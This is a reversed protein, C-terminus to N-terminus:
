RLLKYRHVYGGGRGVSEPLTFNLIGLFYVGKLGYDWEGKPAQGIIPLASYYLARETFHEQSRVQVEVIFDEGSSSRCEVDFYSNRMEPTEGVHEVNVYQLEAIELRFVQELLVKLLNKNKETGFLEKFAVDILPDVYKPVVIM